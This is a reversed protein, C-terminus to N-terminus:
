RALAAPDAFRSKQAQETPPFYKDLVSQRRTNMEGETKGEVADLEGHIRNGVYAVVEDLRYADLPDDIDLMVSPRQDWTKALQYLNWV